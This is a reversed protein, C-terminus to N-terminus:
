GPGGPRDIGWNSFDKIEPANAKGARCQLARADRMDDHRERSRARRIPEQPTKLPESPRARSYDSRDRPALLELREPISLRERDCYQTIPIGGVLEM